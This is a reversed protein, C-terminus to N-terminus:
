TLTLRFESDPCRDRNVAQLWHVGNRPLKRPLECVGLGSCSPYRGWYQKTLMVANAVFILASKKFCDTRSDLALELDLSLYPNPRIAPM